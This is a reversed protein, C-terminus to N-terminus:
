GSRVTAATVGWLQSTGLEAGKVGKYDAVSPASPAQVGGGIGCGLVPYRDLRERDQGAVAALYGGADGGFGAGGSQGGALPVARVRARVVEGALM